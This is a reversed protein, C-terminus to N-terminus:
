KIQPGPGLFVIPGRAAVRSLVRLPSSHFIGVGAHFVFVILEVDTSTLGVEVLWHQSM